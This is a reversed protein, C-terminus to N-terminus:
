WVPSFFGGVDMLIRDGSGDLRRVFLRDIGSSEGVYVVFNGDPSVSPALEDRIGAGGPSRASGDPRVRRLRWGNRSPASYVIWDGEPTFAPQRGPALTHEEGTELDVAIIEQRTASASPGQTTRVYLLQKGDPSVQFTEAGAGELLLRSSRGSADTLFIRSVMGSQLADVQLVGIQRGPGYAGYLHQKEGHTIVRVEDVSPHYEYLQIRGSRHNSLFLLRERDASWALPVAGPPAAAIRTVAGTHPDVLSLRGPYRRRSESQPTAGLLRGVAELQAVGRKQARQPQRGALEELLEARRRAEEPEWYLVAIPDAPLERIPLGGSACGSTTLAVLAVAVRAASRLTM